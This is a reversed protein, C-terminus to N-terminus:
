DIALVPERRVRLRVIVQVEAAIGYMHDLSHVVDVVFPEARLRADNKIPLLYPRVLGLLRAILTFPGTLLRRCWGLSPSLITRLAGRRLGILLGRRRLM